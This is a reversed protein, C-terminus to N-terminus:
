RLITPTGIRTSFFSDLELLLTLYAGVGTLGTTREVFDVTYRIREGVDQLGSLTQALGRGTHVIIQERLM